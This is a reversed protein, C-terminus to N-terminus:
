TWSWGLLVLVGFITFLAAAVYRLKRLPLREALKEGILVAPVNAVMMGLTTGFTVAALSTYKAGLAITALQTKDGIEAIFFLVLTTLFAGRTSTTTSKEDLSDPILAWGAFALFAIGLPWRMVDPSVNSAIWDGAFAACLHNALTAAFIGAIIPWPRRPFRAALVFSLLQTKDGMEAVAVIGLSALFAEM